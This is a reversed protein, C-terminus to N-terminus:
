CPVQSSSSTLLNAFVPQDNTGYSSVALSATAVTICHLVFDNTFAWLLLSVSSLGMPVSIDCLIQLTIKTNLNIASVLFHRTIYWATAQFVISISARVIISIMQYTQVPSYANGTLSAISNSYGSTHEPYM